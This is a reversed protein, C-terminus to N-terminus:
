SDSHCDSSSLWLYWKQLVGGPIEKIEM